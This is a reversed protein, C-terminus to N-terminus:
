VEQCRPAGAVRAREFGAEWARHRMEADRVFPSYRILALVLENVIRATGRLPRKFDVFLVARTGETDNWVEHEYVDDFVLSQGERWHRVEAGVRIACQEHPAPVILGLHYRLVGRYPGEHPPIRKGPELISFMATTMGPIQRLLRATRPCRELNRGLKRGYGYFFFTKWRRDDSLIGQHSSIEQFAPLEDRRELVLDLERRVDRWHTELTEIWPFGKPDFFAYRGVSSRVLLFRDLGRLLRGGARNSLRLVRERIGRPPPLELLDVAASVPLSTEAAIREAAREPM